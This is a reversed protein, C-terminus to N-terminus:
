LPASGGGNGGDGGFFSACDTPLTGPCPNSEPPDPIIGDIGLVAETNFGMAFSVADCATTPGPQPNVTADRSDCFFAAAQGYAVSGPCFPQSDQDRYSALAGFLGEESVLGAIVGNRLELGRDPDDVIDAVVGGGLLELVVRSTTGAFVIENSVLGSVLQGNTVYANTDVYRPEDITGGAVLSGESVPWVDAGDWMPSDTRGTASYVSVTVQPDDPLRNWEQVRFLLSASGNEAAQSFVAEFDLQFLLKSLEIIDFFANDRGNGEDCVIEADRNPQCSPGEDFGTPDCTCRRDLDLGVARDSRDRFNVERVVSFFETRVNTDNTAPPPPYGDSQCSAGVGGSGGDAATGGVGGAAGAGGGGM